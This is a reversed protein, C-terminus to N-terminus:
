KLECSGDVSIVHIYSEDYHLNSLFSKEIADCSEKAQKLTLKENIIQSTSYYDKHDAPAYADNYIIYGDCACIYTKKKCSSVILIFFLLRLFFYKSSVM